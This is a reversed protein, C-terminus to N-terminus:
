RGLWYFEGSEARRGYWGIPRSNGNLLCFVTDGPRRAVTRQTLMLSYLAGRKTTFHFQIHKWETATLAFTDGNWEITGATQEKM